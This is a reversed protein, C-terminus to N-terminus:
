RVDRARALAADLDEFYADFRDPDGDLRALAVALACHDSGYPTVDNCLADCAVAKWLTGLRADESDQLLNMLESRQWWTGLREYSAALAVLDSPEFRGRLDQVRDEQADVVARLATLGLESLDSRELPSPPLALIAPIPARGRM